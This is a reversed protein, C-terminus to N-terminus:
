VNSFAYLMEQASGLGVHSHTGHRDGAIERLDEVAVDWGSSGKATGANSRQRNDGVKQTRDALPEATFGVPLFFSTTKSLPLAM